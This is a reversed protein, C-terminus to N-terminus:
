KEREWTFNVDTSFPTLTILIHLEGEIDPPHLLGAEANLTKTNIVCHNNFITRNCARNIHAIVIKLSNDCESVNGKTVGVLINASGNVFFPLNERLRHFIRRRAVMPDTVEEAGDDSFSPIPNNYDVVFYKKM